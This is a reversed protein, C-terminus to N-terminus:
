KGSILLHKGCSFVWGTMKREQNRWICACSSQVSEALMQLSQHLVIDYDQHFGGILINASANAARLLRNEEALQRENVTEVMWKLDSQQIIDNEM